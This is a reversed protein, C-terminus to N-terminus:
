EEPWEMVSVERPLCLKAFAGSTADVQDDHVGPSPFASFEDLLDRNWHARRVLVHGAEAMAALPRARVVKDGTARQGRFEYGPLVNRTFDDIVMAGSSGPEQEMWIPVGRGDEAAAQAVMRRVGQPSRRDRLVNLIVYQREATRGMLVGATYDRDQGPKPETSALDWWRVRQAIEPVEDIIRFWDRKFVQGLPLVDWNGELLQARTVPDLLQLQAEYETQNLFPNDQLKAPIFPRGKAPGEVVFRQKV